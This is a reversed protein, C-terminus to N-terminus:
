ISCYLKRAVCANVCREREAHVELSISVERVCLLRRWVARTFLLSLGFLGGWHKGTEGHLARRRASQGGADHRKGSALKYNFLSATRVMNSWVCMVAARLKKM